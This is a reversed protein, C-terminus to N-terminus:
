PEESLCTESFAVQPRCVPERSREIKLLIGWFLAVSLMMSGIDAVAMAYIFGSFGFFMNLLILAPLFVIGQRSLSLILAPTGKGMAQMATMLVMQIGIAPLGVIMARLIRAGINMVAIDNIFVRVCGAAFLGFLITFAVVIGTAMLIATKVAAKLRPLNKAGYSYGFLPQAGMALGISLM